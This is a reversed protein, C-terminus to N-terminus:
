QLMTYGPPLPPLTLPVNLNDFFSMMTDREAQTIDAISPWIGLLMSMYTNAVSYNGLNLYMRYCAYYQWSVALFESNNTWAYQGARIIKEAIGADVIKQWVSIFPESEDLDAGSGGWLSYENSICHMLEHAAVDAGAPNWKDNRMTVMHSSTSHPSLTLGLFSGINQGYLKIADDNTVVLWGTRTIIGDLMRAPVYLTLAGLMGWVDGNTLGNFGADTYLGHWGGTNNPHLHLDKITSLIPGPM